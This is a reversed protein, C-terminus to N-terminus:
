ITFLQNLSAFVRDRKYIKVFRIDCGYLHDFLREDHELLKQRYHNIARKSLTQSLMQNTQPNVLQREGSPMPNEELADRVMVVVVEHKQSLISLDIPDLFDGVLFLLTRQEIRSLLEKVVRKHNIKTGLLEGEYLATLGREIEEMKETPASSIIREGRVVMNLFKDNAYSASYGLTAVVQTLIERKEGVVFRGDLLSCVAVNLEREEHMRKIYLEGLKASNIWSIYRIDDGVEYKQLEAFDYGLGLKKSLSGGSLHTYVDKKARLLITELTHRM